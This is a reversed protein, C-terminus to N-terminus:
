VEESPYPRLRGVKVDVGPSYHVLPETRPQPAGSGRLLNQDITLLEASQLPWPAHEVDAIRLQARATTFLRFRATLFNELDNPPIRSGIRVSISSHVRPQGGYRLSSYNVRDTGHDVRMRAWRYPLSYTLRAAAVAALRAAELTFFWIGADGRPGRVYTRVNTEPFRSLWPVPPLHPLRLNSVVFPILGIWASGDFVDVALGAPILRRLDAPNCRWHLFTLGQWSQLMVPHEVSRPAQSDIVM